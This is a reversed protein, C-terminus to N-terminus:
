LLNHYINYSLEYSGNIYKIKSMIPLNKHKCIQRIITIFNKYNIPRNIYFLKSKHYYLKIIDYFPKIDNNYFAKKYSVKNLIYYNNNKNAYKNLFNLLINIDIDDKFLQSM